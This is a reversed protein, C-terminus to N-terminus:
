ISSLPVSITYSVVDVTVHNYTKHNNNSGAYKELPCLIAFEFIESKTELLSDKGNKEYIQSIAQSICSDAISFFKM